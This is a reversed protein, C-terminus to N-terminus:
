EKWLLYFVLAGAVVEFIAVIVSVTFSFPLILFPIAVVLAVFSSGTMIGGLKMFRLKADRKAYDNHTYYPARIRFIVFIFTSMIFLFTIISLVGMLIEPYYYAFTSLPEHLSTPMLIFEKRSGLFFILATFTIGGLFGSMHMKQQSYVNFINDESGMVVVLM